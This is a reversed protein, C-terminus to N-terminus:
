TPQDPSLVRDLSYLEEGHDCIAAVAAVRIRRKKDEFVFAVGSTAGLLLKGDDDVVRVAAGIAFRANFADVQDQPRSIIEDVAGRCAAHFDAALSANRETLNQSM